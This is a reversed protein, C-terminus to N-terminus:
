RVWRGFPQAEDRKRHVYCRPEYEGWANDIRTAFWRVLKEIEAASIGAPCARRIQLNKDPCRPRFSNVPHLYPSRWGEALDGLLARETGRMNVICLFSDPEGPLFMEFFVQLFGLYQWLRGVTGILRFITDKEYKSYTEHGLGLEIVGDRRILLFSDLWGERRTHGWKPLLLGESCAQMHAQIFPAGAGPPYSWQNDAFWSNLEDSDTDILEQAWNSPIALFSVLHDPYLYEDEQIEKNPSSDRRSLCRTWQNLGFSDDDPNSYGKSELLQQLKHERRKQLLHQLIDRSATM